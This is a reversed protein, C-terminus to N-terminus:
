YYGPVFECPSRTLQMRMFLKVPNPKAIVPVIPKGEHKAIIKKLRAIHIGTEAQMAQLSHRERIAKVVRARNLLTAIRAKKEDSVSPCPSGNSVRTVTARPVGTKGPISERGHQNVWEACRKSLAYRRAIDQEQSQTLKTM